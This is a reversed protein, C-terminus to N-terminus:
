RLHAQLMWRQKEIGRAIEIYIDQTALDRETPALNDRLDQDVLRICAILHGLLKVEERVTEPFPPLQTKAATAEVTGRAVGGLTTAREAVLDAWERVEDAFTDFMQHLQYFDIGVINWHAQKYDMALDTLNALTQNLRNVLGDAVEGVVDEVAYELVPANLASTTM